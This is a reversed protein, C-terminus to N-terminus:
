SAICREIWKGKGAEGVWSLYSLDGKTEMGECHSSWSRRREVNSRIGQDGDLDMVIIISPAELDRQSVETGTHKGLLYTEM